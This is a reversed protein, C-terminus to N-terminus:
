RSDTSAEEKAGAALVTAASSEVLAYWSMFTVWPISDRLFWSLVAGPLLWFILRAIAFRRATV